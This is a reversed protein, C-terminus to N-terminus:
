EGWTARGDTCCEGTRAVLLLEGDKLARQGTVVVQDGHSLGSAIVVQDGAVEGLTIPQWQAVSDRVLFVGQEARATVIWEQPLVVANTAIERSLHVQAIMGPLLTADPNPVTVEVPFARTRLDAAAGVHTIEGTYIGSIANTQVDVSMGEILTVVDRDAVTLTVRIPDLRVLRAVPAGPAVHGGAEVSVDAVIGDFPARIAARALRARAQRASSETVVANTQAAQLAAPSILDGLSQQRELEKAAQTALAAAQDVAAGFLEADVSAISQGKRVAQGRRVHVREILGGNGAALVV